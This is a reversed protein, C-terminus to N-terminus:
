AHYCQGPWIAPFHQYQVTQPTIRSTIAQIRSAQGTPSNRNNQAPDPDTSSDSCFTIPIQPGNSNITQIPQPRCAEAYTLKGTVNSM